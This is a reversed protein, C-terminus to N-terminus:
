AALEAVPLAVAADADAVGAVVLGVFLVEAEVALVVEAEVALVVAAEVALVVEAEVALVVASGCAMCFTM